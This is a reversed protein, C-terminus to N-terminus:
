APPNQPYSMQKSSKPSCQRGYVSSVFYKIGLIHPPTGEFRRGWPAPRQWRVALSIEIGSSALFDDVMEDAELAAVRRESAGSRTAAM